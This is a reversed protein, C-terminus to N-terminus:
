QPLVSVGHSAAPQVDVEPGCGADALGVGHEVLSPPPPAAASVHDDAVHLGVATSARLLLQPVERDDWATRTSYRPAVRSSISRSATRARRGSTASTSSSAWVLAGPAAVLLAPLVDLLQQGGADVHDRGDVDLVQLRQVVDDLPDGAHDLALGHGVGDDPSRVLDLQHVHAGLRQAAAHGM